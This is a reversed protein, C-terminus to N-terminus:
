RDQGNWSRHPRGTRDERLVAAQVEPKWLHAVSPLRSPETELKRIEDYAIRAIQREEHTFVAPAEEFGAAGESQLCKTATAMIRKLDNEIAIEWALPESKMM